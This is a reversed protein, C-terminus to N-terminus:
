RVGIGALLDDLWGDRAPASELCREREVRDLDGEIEDVHDCLGQANAERYRELRVIAWGFDALLLAVLVPLAIRAARM